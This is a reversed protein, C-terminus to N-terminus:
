EMHMGDPSFLTFHVRKGACISRARTPIHSNSDPRFECIKLAANVGAAEQHQQVNKCVERANILLSNKLQTSSKALAEKM